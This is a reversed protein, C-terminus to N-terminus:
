ATSYKNAEKYISNLRPVKLSTKQQPTKTSHTFYMKIRIKSSQMKLHLLGPVGRFLYDLLVM